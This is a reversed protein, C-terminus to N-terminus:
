VQGGDCVQVTKVKLGGARPPAHTRKTRALTCPPLTGVCFRESTFQTSLLQFKLTIQKTLRLQIIALVLVRLCCTRVRASQKGREEETTGWALAFLLFFCTSGSNTSLACVTATTIRGSAPSGRVLGWVCISDRLSVHFICYRFPASELDDHICLSRVQDDRHPRSM